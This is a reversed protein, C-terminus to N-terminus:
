RSLCMRAATLGSITVPYSFHVSCMRDAIIRRKQKGDNNKRPKYCAAIYMYQM